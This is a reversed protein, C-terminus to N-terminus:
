ARDELLRTQLTHHRVSVWPVRHPFAAPDPATGAGIVTVHPGNQRCPVWVTRCM